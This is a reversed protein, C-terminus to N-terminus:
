PIWAAAVKSNSIVTNATKPKTNNKKAVAGENSIAFRFCFAKGFPQDPTNAAIGKAM